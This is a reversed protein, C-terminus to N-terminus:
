PGIPRYKCSRPGGQEATPPNPTAPHGSRASFRWAVYGGIAAAALAYTGSIVAERDSDPDGVSGYSYARYLNTAAGGFFFGAVGGYVGGLRVGVVTGLGALLTAVGLQHGGSGGPAAPAAPPAASAPRAQPGAPPGPEQGLAVLHAPEETFPHPLPAADPHTSAPSPPSAPPLAPLPPPADVSPPAFPGPPGELSWAPLSQSLSTM